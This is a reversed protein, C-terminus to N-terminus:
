PEHLGEQHRWWGVPSGARALAIPTNAVTPDESLAVDLDSLELASSQHLLPRSGPRRGAAPSTGLMGPWWRQLLAPAISLAALACLVVVAQWSYLDRWSHLKRITRGAAVLIIVQMSVHV